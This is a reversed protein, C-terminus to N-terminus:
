SSLSPEVTLFAAWDTMLKARQEFLDSRFYAREVDTGVSHALALEPVERPYSTQEACWDRFTSRLGHTDADPISIKRLLKRVAANTLKKGRVLGNFVLDVPGADDRRVAKLLAIVPASLPVRHPRRMKMREAPVSWVPIDADLDFEQWTAGLVEGVRMATLLVTMLVKASTSSRTALAAYVKPAEPYPIAVHSKIVQVRSLPPLRHELEGRWKAPNDGSRYGAVRAWDLIREIRSRLRDATESKTTWIPELIRVIHNADVQDVPLSGIVPNAYTEVTQTWQYVHQANSWGAKHAAIYAKACDAFTMSTTRRVADRAQMPDIGDLLLKQGDVVKRKAETFTVLRAPGLGMRRLRGQHRYRMVWSRTRGGDRIQLWLNRDVHHDGDNCLATVETATLTRPM